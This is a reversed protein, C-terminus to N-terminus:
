DDHQTQEQHAVRCVQPQYVNQARRLEGDSTQELGTAVGPQWRHYPPPMQYLRICDTANGPRHHQRNAREDTTDDRRNKAGLDRQDNVSTSKRDGSQENDRNAM